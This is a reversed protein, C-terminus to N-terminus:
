NQELFARIENILRKKDRNSLFLGFSFSQNTGRDDKWRLSCTTLLNQWAFIASRIAIQEISHTEGRILRNQGLRLYWLWSSLRFHEQEFKINIGFLTGLILGNLLQFDICLKFLCPCLFSFRVLLLMLLGLVLPTTVSFDSLASSLFIFLLSIERILTEFQISSYIYWLILFSFGIWAVTFIAFIWSGANPLGVPAIEILLQENTRQLHILTM